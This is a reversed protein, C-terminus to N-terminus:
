NPKTPVPTKPASGAAPHAPVGAPGSSEGMKRPQFTGPMLMWGPHNQQWEQAIAQEQQRATQIQNELATLAVRDSTSLQPDTPAQSWAYSITGLVILSLALAPEKIRM